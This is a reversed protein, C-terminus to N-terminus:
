YGLPVVKTGANAYSAGPPNREADEQGAASQMCMGDAIVNIVHLELNETADRQPGSRVLLIVTAGSVRRQHFFDSSLFQTSALCIYGLLLYCLSLIFM